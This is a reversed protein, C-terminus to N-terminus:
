NTGIEWSDDGGSAADCPRQSMAGGLWDMLRGHNPNDDDWFANRRGPTNRKALGALNAGAAPTAALLPELYSTVDELLGGLACVWGDVDSADYERLSMEEMVARALRETAAQEETSWCTRWKAKLPKQLVIEVETSLEERVLLEVLRPWFYPLDAESGVTLLASRAYRELQEATLERLPVEVLPRLEAPDTCCACGEVVRPRPRRFAAYLADIAARLQPSPEYPM